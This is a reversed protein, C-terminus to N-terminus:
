RSVESFVNVLSTHEANQNTGILILTLHAVSNQALHTVEYLAPLEKYQKTKASSTSSMIISM